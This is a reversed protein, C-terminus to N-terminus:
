TAARPTVHPTTSHTLTRQVSFACSRQQVYHTRQQRQHLHGDLLLLLLRLAGHLLRLVQLVLALQLGGRQVRLGLVAAALLLRQAALGLADLALHLLLLLLLQARVQAGAVDLHAPALVQARQRSWVGTKQATQVQKAVAASSAVRCSESGRVGIGARCTFSPSFSSFFM